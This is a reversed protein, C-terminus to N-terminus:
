TFHLPIEFANFYFKEYPGGGTIFIRLNEKTTILYDMYEISGVANAEAITKPFDPNDKEIWTNVRNDERNLWTHKGRFVELTFDPLEFKEGPTVPFIEDLDLNLDKALSYASLSGVFINPKFKEAIYKLDLIHDGHTHSLLVYDAGQFDAPSFDQRKGSIDICPDILIEKGNPLLMEYCCYNIWRVKLEALEM